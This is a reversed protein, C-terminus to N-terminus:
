LDKQTKGAEIDTRAEMARLLTMGPGFGNPAKAELATKAAEDVPSVGQGNADIGNETGDKGKAKMEAQAALRERIEEAIMKEIMTRQEASMKALDEESLGMQELIKKRLEALKEDNVEKAYTRFGKEHIEALTDQFSTMWEPQNPDAAPEPGFVAFGAGSVGTAGFVNSM